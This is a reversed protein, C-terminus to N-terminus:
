GPLDAGNIAILSGSTEMQVKDPKATLQLILSQQLRLSPAAM